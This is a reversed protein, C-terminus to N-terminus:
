TYIIYIDGEEEPGVCPLEKRCAPHPTLDHDIGYIDKDNGYFDKIKMEEEINM